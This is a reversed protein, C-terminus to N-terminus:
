LKLQMSVQAFGPLEAPVANLEQVQIGYKERLTVLWQMLGDFEVENFQLNVLNDNTLSLESVVPMLGSETLSNEVTPLFMDASLTENPKVQGKSALIRPAATQMYVLTEQDLIANQNYRAIADTLPLWIFQYLVVFIFLAGTCVVLIRERKSLQKWRQLTQQWYSSEILQKHWPAIFTKIRQKLQQWQEQYKKNM